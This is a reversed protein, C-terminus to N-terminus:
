AFFSKVSSLPALFVGGGWKSLFKSCPWQWNTKKESSSCASAWFSCRECSYSITWKRRSTSSTDGQLGSGKKWDLAGFHKTVIIDLLKSLDVETEKEHERAKEFEVRQKLPGLIQLTIRSQVWIIRTIRSRVDCRSAHHAIKYARSAYNVLSVKIDNVERSRRPGFLRLVM